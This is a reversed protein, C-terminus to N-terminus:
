EKKVFVLKNNDAKYIQNYFDVLEGYKSAPFRGAFKKMSRYYMIQNDTVSITASYKGFDGAIQTNKPIGEPKYGLPIKIEVTDIDTYAYNIDIDFKRTPDPLLKHNNKSMINPCVFLRKGTVQSYNNSSIKLRETLNPLLSFSENYDFSEVDYNPLDIDKKLHESIETKSRGNIISHLKDQQRARYITVVESTLQGEPNIEAKIKRLQLNDAMTYGPTRVLTGGNEDILLAFRDSTFGSVYGAPLTQSTCELWITDGQIPVSLIVHNFQSSPFNSIFFQKGEGATVLTYYSNVGAEKLLSYMYNTLAKCDGYRNAAVYSADFPQWGGLGLQVSVYRSNEQLFHYLLAVKKRPDEVQDTLEHVTKKINAPLQDKGAKLAYVFKGFEQWSCMNGKYGQVSFEGPGMCIVPTIEYWFPSAYENEVAAINQLEWTYTKRSKQNSLVPDAKFNFAKYRFSIADPLVVSIRGYEMSVNEDDLPVWGPYFMTYNYKLEIEYEVTYPYIKHYFNHYKIRNDDALNSDDNSSMDQIDANRLSKIKKGAEDYLKGEISEVTQLKDYNELCHAFKDGKENLITFAVKHFYRAKELDIVEFRIDEYRKVANANLLLAAPIKNVAYDGEGALAYYYPSLALFFIILPKM